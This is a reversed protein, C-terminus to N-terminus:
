ISIPRYRRPPNQVLGIWEAEFATPSIMFGASAGACNAMFWNPSSNIKVRLTLKDIVDM